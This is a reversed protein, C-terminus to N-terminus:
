RGASLEFSHSLPNTTLTMRLHYLQVFSFHYFFRGRKLTRRYPNKEPNAGFPRGAFTDLRTITVFRPSEGSWTVELLASTKDEQDDAVSSDDILTSPFSIDHRNVVISVPDFTRSHKVIRPFSNPDIHGDCRTDYSGGKCVVAEPVIYVKICAIHSKCAVSEAHTQFPRLALVTLLCCIVRSARM